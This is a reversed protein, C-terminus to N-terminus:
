WVFRGALFQPATKKIVFFWVGMWDRIPAHNCCNPVCLTRVSRFKKLSFRVSSGYPEVIARTLRGQHSSDVKGERPDGQRDLRPPLLAQCSPRPWAEISGVQRDLPCHLPFIREVGVGNSIKRVTFTESLGGGRRGIVTGQFLQIREKIAGEIVRVHVAVTDGISFDPIAEAPKLQSATIFYRFDM